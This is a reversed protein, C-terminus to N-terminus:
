RYLQWGNYFAQSPKVRKIKNRRLFALIRRKHSLSKNWNYESTLFREWARLIKNLDRVDYPNDISTLGEISGGYWEGSPQSGSTQYEFVTLVHGHMIGDAFLEREHDIIVFKIRPHRYKIHGSRTQDGLLNEYAFYVISGDKLRM